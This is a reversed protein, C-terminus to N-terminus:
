MALYKCVSLSLSVCESQASTRYKFGRGERSDMGIADM